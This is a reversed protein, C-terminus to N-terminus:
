YRLDYFNINLKKIQNIINETRDYNIFDIPFKYDRHYNMHIVLFTTKNRGGGSTKLSINEIQNISIKTVINKFVLNKIYIGKNCSEMYYSKSYFIILTILGLISLPLM